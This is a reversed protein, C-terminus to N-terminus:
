QMLKNQNEENVKNQNSARLSHYVNVANIQERNFNGSRQIQGNREYKNSVLLNGTRYMSLKAINLKFCNQIINYM